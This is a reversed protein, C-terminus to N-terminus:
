EILGKRFAISVAHTTNRAGLKANIRKVHANVTPGAIFLFAGAEKYTDGCAMRKLVELERDTLGGRRAVPQGPDRDAAWASVREAWDPVTRVLELLLRGANSAPAVRRLREHALLPDGAALARSVGPMETLPSVPFTDLVTM